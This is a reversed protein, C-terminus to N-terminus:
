PKIRERLKLLEKEATAAALIGFAATLIEAWSAILELTERPLESM